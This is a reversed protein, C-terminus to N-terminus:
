GRSILPLTANNQFFALEFWWPWICHGLDGCKLFPKFPFPSSLDPNSPTSLFCEAPCCSEVQKGLLLIWNYNFFFFNRYPKHITMTMSGLIKFGSFSRLFWRVYEVWKMSLSVPIWTPQFVLRIDWVLTTVSDPSSPLKVEENVCQPMPFSSSFLEFILPFGEWM